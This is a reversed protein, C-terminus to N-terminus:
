KENDEQRNACWVKALIHATTGKTDKIYCIQGPRALFEESKRESERETRKRSQLVLTVSESTGQVTNGM